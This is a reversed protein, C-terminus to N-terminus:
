LLTGQRDNQRSRRKRSRDKTALNRPKKAGGGSPSGSDVREVTARSRGDHFRIAIRDGPTLESASSITRDRGGTVLVFGRELIRQYSCSELLAGVRMLVARRERIAMTVTQAMARTESTLRSRAHIILHQPKRIAATLAVLDSRRQDMGVRLGYGLRETWDDLRQGSEEIMRVLDPLNRVLVKLQMRCDDMIRHIANMMRTGNDIVQALLVTRVPVAMEAAATPTPARRDAAFDILTTDTEHGIASILPTRSAAAARVVVEENFAWLDEM